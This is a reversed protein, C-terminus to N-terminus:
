DNQQQLCSLSLLNARLMYLLAGRKDTRECVFLQACKWHRRCPWTDNSWRSQLPDSYWHTLRSKQQLEQDARVIFLVLRHTHTHKIWANSTLFCHLLLFQLVPFLPSSLRYLLCKATDRHNTSPSPPTSSNICTLENSMHDQHIMDNCTVPFTLTVLMWRGIIKWKNSAPQRAPSSMIGATMPCVIPHQRSLDGPRIWQQQKLAFLM